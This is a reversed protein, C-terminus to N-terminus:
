IFYNDDQKQFASGCGPNSCVVMEDPKQVPMLCQQCFYHKQWAAEEETRMTKNLLYLTAPVNNPKPLHLQLMAM